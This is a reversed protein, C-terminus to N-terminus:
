KELFSSISSKILEGVQPTYGALTFVVNSNKDLVIHTPFIGVQLKEV